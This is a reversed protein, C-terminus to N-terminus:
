TVMVRTGATEDDASCVRIDSTALMEAQRDSGAARGSLQRGLRAMPREVTHALLWALIITVAMAALAPLFRLTSAFGFEDGLHLFALLVPYHLLYIGYSVDTGLLAQFAHMRRSLAPWKSVCAIIAAAGIACLYYGHWVNPLRYRLSMCSYLALGALLICWWGWPALSRWWNEPALTVLTGIAFIGLYAATGVVHAHLFASGAALLVTLASAQWFPLRLLTWGLVPFALLSVKTETMLSWVTPLAFDSQMGPVVLFMHLFWQNWGPDKRTIFEPLGASVTAITDGKLWVLVVFTLALAAWYAPFLRFVRRLLYHRYGNWSFPTRALSRSLVHGSLVFFLIVGAKGDLPGKTLWAPVHIEFLRRAHTAM